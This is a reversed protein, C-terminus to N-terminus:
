KIWQEGPLKFWTGSAKYRDEGVQIIIGADIAGKLWLRADRHSTDIAACFMDLNFTGGEVDMIAAFDTVKVANKLMKNRFTSLSIVKM